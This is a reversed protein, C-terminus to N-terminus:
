GINIDLTGSAEKWCAAVGLERCLAEMRAAIRMARPLGALHAQFRMIITPYLLIRHIRNGYTEIMFIFSEDNREM